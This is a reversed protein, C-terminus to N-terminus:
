VMFDENYNTNLPMAGTFGENYRFGMPIMYRDVFKKSHIDTHHMCLVCGAEKMDKLLRNLLAKVYPQKDITLNQNSITVGMLAFPAGISIYFYSCAVPIDKEYIIYSNPPFLEKSMGQWEINKFWELVELKQEDSDILKIEM